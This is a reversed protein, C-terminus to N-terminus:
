GTGRRIIGGSEQVDDAPETKVEAKLGNSKNSDHIDTMTIVGRRDTRPYRWYRLIGM